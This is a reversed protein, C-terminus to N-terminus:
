NFNIYENGLVMESLTLMGTAEVIDVNIPIVALGDVTDVILVGKKSEAPVIKSVEPLLELLTKEVSKNANLEVVKLTM